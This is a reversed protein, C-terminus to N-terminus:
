IATIGAAEPKEACASCLDAEVWHCPAGNTVCARSDTCGCVRCTGEANAGRADAEAEATEDLIQLAEALEAHLVDHQGDALQRTVTRVVAHIRDFREDSIAHDASLFRMLGDDEGPRAIMHLAEVPCRDIHTVSSPTIDTALGYTGVHMRLTDSTPFGCLLGDDFGTFVHEELFGGCVRHTILTEGEVLYDEMMALATADRAAFEARQEETVPM